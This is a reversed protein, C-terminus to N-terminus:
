YVRVGARLALLKRAMVSRLGHGRPLGHVTPHISQTIRRVRQVASEFDFSGTQQWHRLIDMRRKYDEPSCQCGVNIGSCMHGIDNRGASYAAQALQSLEHAEQDTFQM